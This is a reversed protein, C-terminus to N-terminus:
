SFLTVFFLNLQRICNWQLIFFNMYLCLYYKCIKCNWCRLWKQGHFHQDATKYTNQIQTHWTCVYHTPTYAAWSHTSMTGRVFKHECACGWLCVCVSHDNRGDHANYQHSSPFTSPSLFISPRLSSFTKLYAFSFYLRQCYQMFNEANIEGLFEWISGVETVKATSKMGQSTLFAQGQPVQLTCACMCVGQCLGLPALLPYNFHLYQYKIIQFPEVAISKIDSWRDDGRLSPTARSSWSGGGLCGWGRCCSYCEVVM